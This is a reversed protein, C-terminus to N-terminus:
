GAIKTQGNSDSPRNRRKLMDLFFQRAAERASPDDPDPGVTAVNAPDYDTVTVETGDPLDLPVDLVVQGGRVVGHVCFRQM